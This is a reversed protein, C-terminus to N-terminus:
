TIIKEVLAETEYHPTGYGLRVLTRVRELKDPIQEPHEILANRRVADHYRRAARYSEWGVESLKKLYEKRLRQSDVLLKHGAVELDRFQTWKRFPFEIEEPTSVRGLITNRHPFRGFREVIEAHRKIYYLTREYDPSDNRRLM